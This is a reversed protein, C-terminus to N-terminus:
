SGLFSSVYPLVDKLIFYLFTNVQISNRRNGFFPTAKIRQRIKTPSLPCRLDDKMLNNNDHPSLPTIDTNLTLNPRNNPIFNNTRINPYYTPSKFVSDDNELNPPVKSVIPLPEEIHQTTVVNSSSEQENEDNITEEEISQNNNNIILSDSNKISNTPKSKRLKPLNVSAKIRRRNMQNNASQLDNENTNSNNVIETTATEKESKEEDNNLNNVEDVLDTVENSVVDVNKNDAIITKDDNENISKNDTKSFRRPAVLNAIAKVRPRRTSM